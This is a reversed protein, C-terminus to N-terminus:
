VDQLAERITSLLTCMGPSLLDHRYKMGRLLGEWGCVLDEHGRHAVAM